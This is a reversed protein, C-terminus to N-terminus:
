EVAGRVLSPHEEAGYWLAGEARFIAPLSTAIILVILLAVLFLLNRM